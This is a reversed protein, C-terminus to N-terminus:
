TQNKYEGSILEERFISFMNFSGRKYRKLIYYLFTSHIKKSSIDISVSQLLQERNEM